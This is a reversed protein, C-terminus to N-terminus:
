KGCEALWPVGGTVTILGKASNHLQLPKYFFSSNFLLPSKTLSTVAGSRVGM